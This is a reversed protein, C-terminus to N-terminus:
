QRPGKRNRDFFATVIRLDLAGEDYVIRLMRNGFDPVRGFARFRGSHDPDTEAWETRALM